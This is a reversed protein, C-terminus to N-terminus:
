QEDTWKSTRLIVTWNRDLESRNRIRDVREGWHGNQPREQNVDCKKEHTKIKKRWRLLLCVSSTKSYNAFGPVLFIQDRKNQSCNLSTLFKLETLLPWIQRPCSDRVASIAVVSRMTWEWLTMVQNQKKHGYGWQSTATFIITQQSCPDPPSPFFPCFLACSHSRSYITIIKM